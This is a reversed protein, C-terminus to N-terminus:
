YRHYEIFKGKRPSKEFRAVGKFVGKSAGCLPKTTLTTTGMHDEVCSRFGIFFLGVM